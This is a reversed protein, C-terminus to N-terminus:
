RGAPWFLVSPGLLSGLFFDGDDLWSSYKQAVLLSEEDCAGDVSSTGESLKQARQAQKTEKEKPFKRKRPNQACLKAGLKKFRKVGPRSM